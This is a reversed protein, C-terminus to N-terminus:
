NKEIHAGTFGQFLDRGSGKCNTTLLGRNTKM